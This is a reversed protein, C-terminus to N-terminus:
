GRSHLPQFIRLHFYGIGHHANDFAEIRFADGIILFNGRQERNLVLVIHREFAMIAFFDGGGFM